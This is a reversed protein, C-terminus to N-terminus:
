GKLSEEWEVGDGRGVPRLVVLVRAGVQQLDLSITSKPSFVYPAGKLLGDGLLYNKKNMKKDEKRRKITNKKKRCKATKGKKKKMTIKQTNRKLETEKKGEKM